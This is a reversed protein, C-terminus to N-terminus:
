LDLLYMMEHATKQFTGFANKKCMGERPREQERKGSQGVYSFFQTLDDARWNLKMLRWGEGGSADTDESMHEVELAAGFKEQEEKPGGEVEKGNVAAYILDM